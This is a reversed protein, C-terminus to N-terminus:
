EVVDGAQLADARGVHFEQEGRVAGDEAFVVLQDVRRNCAELGIGVHGVEPGAGDVPREHVLPFFLKGATLELELGFFQMAGPSASSRSSKTRSISLAIACLATASRSPRTSGRTLFRRGSSCRARIPGRRWARLRKRSAAYHLISHWEDRGSSVQREPSPPDNRSPAAIAPRMAADHGATEGIGLRSEM